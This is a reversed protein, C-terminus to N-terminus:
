IETKLKQRGIDFLASGTLDYPLVMSTRGIFGIASFKSVNDLLIYLVVYLHLVWVHVFVYGFSFWTYLVCVYVRTYFVSM